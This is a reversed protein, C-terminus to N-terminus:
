LNKELMVTKFSLIKRVNNVNNLEFGYSIPFYLALNVFGLNKKEKKKIKAVDMFRFAFGDIYAM